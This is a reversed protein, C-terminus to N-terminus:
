AADGVRRTEADRRGVEAKSECLSAVVTLLESPELPKAVHAHFGEALARERDESRAYATLAVAPLTSNQGAEGARIKGVLAYGDEGPMGIDCVLIQPNF